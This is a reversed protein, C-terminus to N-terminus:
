QGGRVEVGEELLFIGPKHALFSWIQWLFLKNPQDSDNCPPDKKKEEFSGRIGQQESRQKKQKFLSTM